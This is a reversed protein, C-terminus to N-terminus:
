QSSIFLCSMHFLVIIEITVVVPTNSADSETVSTAIASIPIVFVVARATSCETSLTITHTLCSTIAVATAVLGILFLIDMSDAVLVSM